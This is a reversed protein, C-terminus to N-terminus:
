WSGSAGGGGFGGGGGSFGGGGGSGGGSRGFMLLLDFIIWGTNGPFIVAAVRLFIIFIIFFMIFGSSGSEQPKAKLEEDSITVEKLVIAGIKQVGSIIASGYDGRKLYPVIDHRIIYGCTADTLLGELGYGVEIRLKRDNVSLLLLVGNDREKQGLKWKEVVQMSYSEIPLGKTSKVTLVVIQAGNKKEIDQLYSTISREQQSSLVGALDNVRQPRNPIKVAGFLTSILLLTTLAALLLRNRM